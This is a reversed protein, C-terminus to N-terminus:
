QKEYIRFIYKKNQNEIYFRSKIKIFIDFHTMKTDSNLFLYMLFLFLFM